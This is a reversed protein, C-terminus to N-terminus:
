LYDTSCALAHNQAHYPSKAFNLLFNVLYPRPRPCQHAGPTRFGRLVRTQQDVAIEFDLKVFFWPSSGGGGKFATIQLLFFSRCFFLFRFYFCYDSTFVTIQLLFLSRNYFCLDATFFHDATLIPHFMPQTVACFLIYGYKPMRVLYSLSHCM